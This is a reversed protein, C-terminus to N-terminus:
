KVLEKMKLQLKEKLKVPLEALHLDGKSLYNKVAIDLYGEKKTEGFEILGRITIITNDNYKSTDIENVIKEALKFDLELSKLMALHAKSENSIQKEDLKGNLLGLLDTTRKTALLEEELGLHKYIEYSKMLYDKCTEYDSYLYSQGIYFYAMAKFRPTIRHDAILPLGNERAETYKKQKVLARIYYVNVRDIFRPSPLDNIDLNKLDNLLKKAKEEVKDIQFTNFRYVIEIYEKLIEVHPHGWNIAKSEAYTDTFSLERTRTMMLLEYLRTVKSMEHPKEKGIEIAKRMAEFYDKEYCYDLVDKIHSSKLGEKTVYDEITTWEPDDKKAYLKHYGLIANLSTQPQGEQIFKITNAVTNKTVGIEDAIDQYSRKRLQSDEQIQEVIETLKM